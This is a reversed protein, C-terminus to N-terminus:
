TFWNITELRVAPLKTINVQTISENYYSQTKDEINRLKTHKFVLVFLYIILKQFNNEGKVFLPVFTYVIVTVGCVPQLLYKCSM